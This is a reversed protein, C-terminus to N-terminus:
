EVIIVTVGIPTITYLEEVDRNRLRVCGRSRQQGIYQPENTGHIGYQRGTRPHRHNIAM